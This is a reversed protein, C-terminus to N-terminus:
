PQLTIRLQQWRAYTDPSFTYPACQVVARLASRAIRQGADSQAAAEIESGVVVGDRDLKILLTVDLGTGVDEPLLNWCSKLRVAFGDIEVQSVAPQGAEPAATVAAALLLAPSLM